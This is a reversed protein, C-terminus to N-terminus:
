KKHLPTIKSMEVNCKQKLPQMKSAMEPQPTRNEAGAFIVGEGIESSPTANETSGFVLKLRL